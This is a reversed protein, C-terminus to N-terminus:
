LQYIYKHKNIYAIQPLIFLSNQLYYCCCCLYVPSMNAQCLHSGEWVQSHLFSSLIGMAQKWHCPTNIAKANLPSLKHLEQKLLYQEHERLHHQFNILDKLSCSSLKQWANYTWVLKWSRFNNQFDCAFVSSRQLQQYGKLKKKQKKKVQKLYSNQHYNPTSTRPWYLYAVPATPKEQCSKVATLSLIYKRTHM